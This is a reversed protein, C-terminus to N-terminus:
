MNNGFVLCFRSQILNFLLSCQSLSPGLVVVVMSSLKEIPHLLAGRAVYSGVASVSVHASLSPSLSPAPHGSDVSVPEVPRGVDSVCRM